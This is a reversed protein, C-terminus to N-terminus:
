IGPDFWELRDTHQAYDEPYNRTSGRKREIVTRPNPDLRIRPQSLTPVATRREPIDPIAMKFTRVLELREMAREFKGAIGRPPPNGRRECLLFTAIDACKHKVWPSADLNAETYRLLCYEDITRSADDLVDGYSTPPSDDMRLTVGNASLRNKVDDISCYLTTAM